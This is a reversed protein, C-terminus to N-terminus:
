AANSQNFMLEKGLLNIKKAALLGYVIAPETHHLLALQCLKIIKGMMNCGVFTGVNRWENLRLHDLERRISSKCLGQVKFNRKADLMLKRLEENKTGWFSATAGHQNTSDEIIVADGPLSLLLSAFDRNSICKQWVVYLMWQVRVEEWDSRWLERHPKSICKKAVFGNSCMTLQRQIDICEPTGTSFLGAIYACESNLFHVGNLYFPFGSVMNGLALSMGDVVDTGRRFAYRHKCVDYAEVRTLSLDISNELFSQHNNM